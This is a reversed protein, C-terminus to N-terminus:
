LRCFCLRVIYFTDQAATPISDGTWLNAKKGVIDFNSMSYMPLAKKIYIEAEKNQRASEIKGEKQIVRGYGSYDIKYSTAYTFVDAEQNCHMIDDYVVDYFADSGSAMKRTIRDICDSYTFQDM